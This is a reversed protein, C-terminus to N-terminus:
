FKRPKDRCCSYFAYIVMGSNLKLGTSSVINSNVSSYTSNEDPDSIQKSGERTEKVRLRILAEEITQYCINSNDLDV